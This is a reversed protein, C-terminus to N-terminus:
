TDLATYRSDTAYEISDCDDQRGCEGMLHNFVSEAARRRERYMSKSLIPEAHSLPKGKKEGGRERTKIM